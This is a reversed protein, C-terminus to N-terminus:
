ENITFMVKWGVVRVAMWDWGEVWGFRVGRWGEIVDWVCVDM